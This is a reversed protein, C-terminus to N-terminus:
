KSFRVTIRHDTDNKLEFKLQQPALESKPSVVTPKLFLPYNLYVTLPDLSSTGSQKQWYWSYTFENENSLQPTNYSAEVLINANIPVSLLYAIVTKDHESSITYEKPELEKGGIKVSGLTAGVPLYLRQYNKYAGAPWANSTATNQYLIKLTHTAVLNKDLTIIEELKRKLYYNAKNVGYNNDVVMAYDKHCSAETPCPLDSLEGNWGLTQLVHDVGPSALSILTNKENVSKQLSQVLKLGEGESLEPLRAFLATAVTSLFEKKQTSGPFFNVEAHFQAREYLNDSSITENYDPVSLPGTAGLLDILSGVNVAITGDLDQNLSKKIFWEARRASTPFDPDFNSDRLYWNAEGLINKIPSPPEVHGKLQGDADYVDFIPMDYLKGNEFTLIALSGIFGGTSRLEMNNQFLVAYKRRGGLGITEPVIGFVAKATLVSRKLSQLKDKASVYKKVYKEPIIDPAKDPLSGDLLALKQYLDETQLRSVSITGAIDASGTGFIYHMLEETSHSLDLATTFCSLAQVYADLLLGASKVSTKSAIGPLTSLAVWNAQVYTTSIMTVRSVKPLQEHTLSAYVQKLSLLSLTLAFALSGLYLALAILLGRGIISSLRPPRPQSPKPRPAFLKERRSKLSTLPVFVPSSTTLPTLKPSKPLVAKKQPPEVPTTVPVPHSPSPMLHHSVYGKVLPAVKIKPTYNLVRLSEAFFEQTPPSEGGPTEEGFTLALKFPLATKILDALTLLSLSEDGGLWTTTGPRIKPSMMAMALLMALDSQSIVNQETLGDGPIHLTHNTQIDSLWSELLSSGIEDEGVYDAIKLNKAVHSFPPHIEDGAQVASVMVLQTNQSELLPAVCAVVESGEGQAWVDTHSDLYIVVYDLDYDAQLKTIEEAKAPLFAHTGQGTLITQLELGLSAPFRLLLAAQQRTEVTVIRSRM